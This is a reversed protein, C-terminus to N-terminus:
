ESAMNKKWHRTTCLSDLELLLSNRHSKTCLYFNTFHLEYIISKFSCSLYVFSGYCYKLTDIQSVAVIEPIGVSFASCTLRGSRGVSDKLLLCCAAVFRKCRFVVTYPVTNFFVAIKIGVATLGAKSTNVIGINCM